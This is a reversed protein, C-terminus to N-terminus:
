WNRFPVSPDAVDVFAYADTGEVNKLYVNLIEEDPFGEDRLWARLQGRRLGERLSGLWIKCHQFQQMGGGVVVLLRHM